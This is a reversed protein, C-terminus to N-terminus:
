GDPSLHAGAEHDDTGTALRTEGKGDYRVWYLDSSEIELYKSLATRTFVVHRGDPTWCPQTGKGLDFVRRTELDVALLRGAVTEAVLRQGDPSWVPNFCAAPGDTLRDRDGTEVDLRWIQEDRGNYALHRGDPSLRALNVYHGLDHRAVISGDAAVIRVENGVTFAMRGGASFSPVGARRTAALLPEVAQADARYVASMQLPLDDGAAPDFVKFGLARGDPSWEVWAGSSPADTLRSLTQNDLDYVYVGNGAADTLALRANDPSWVPRSVDALAPAADSRSCPLVGLACAMALFRMRRNM